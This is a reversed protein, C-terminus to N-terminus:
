KIEMSKPTYLTPFPLALNEPVFISTNNDLTLILDKEKRVYSVVDANVMQLLQLNNNIQGISITNESFLLFLDYNLM